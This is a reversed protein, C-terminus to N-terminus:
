PSKCLQTTPFNAWFNNSSTIYKLLISERYAMLRGNEGGQKRGGNPSNFIGSNLTFCWASLYIRIVYTRTMKGVLGFHISIKMAFITSTLFLLFQCINNFNLGASKSWKRVGLSGLSLPTRIVRNLQREGIRDSHIRSMAHKSGRPSYKPLNELMKHIPTLKGQVRSPKRRRYFWSGQYLPILRSYPMLVDISSNGFIM